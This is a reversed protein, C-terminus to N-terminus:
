KLSRDSFGRHGKVLFDAVNSFRASGTISWVDPILVFVCAPVVDPILVFM